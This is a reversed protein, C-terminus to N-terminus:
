LIIWNIGNSIVLICQYQVSLVRTTEEDITESGNCAITIVGTGSNKVYYRKGQIGVATPLTVTFTNTTCDIVYDTSRITYNATKAVYQNTQISSAFNTYTIKKSTYTSDGNSSALYILDGDTASTATTLESIKLSSM